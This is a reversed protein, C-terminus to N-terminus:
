WDVDIRTHIRSAIDAIHPNHGTLEDMVNDVPVDSIECVVSIAEDTVPRVAVCDGFSEELKTKWGAHDIWEPILGLVRHQGGSGSLLPWAGEPFRCRRRDAEHQPGDYKESASMLFHTAASVIRTSFTERTVEKSALGSVLSQESSRLHRDFADIIPQPV